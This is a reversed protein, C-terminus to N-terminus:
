TMCARNRCTVKHRPISAGIVPTSDASDACLGPRRGKSTVQGREWTTHRGWILSTVLYDRYPLGRPSVNMSGKTSRKIPRGERRTTSTSYVCGYVLCNQGCQNDSKGNDICRSVLLGKDLIPSEPASPVQAWRTSSSRCIEM